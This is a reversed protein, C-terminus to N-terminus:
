SSDSTLATVALAPRLGLGLYGTHMVTYHPLHSPTGREGVLSVLCMLEKRTWYKSGFSGSSSTLDLPTHTHPTHSPYHRTCALASTGSSVAAVLSTTSLHPYTHAHPTSTTGTTDKDRGRETDLEGHHQFSHHVLGESM